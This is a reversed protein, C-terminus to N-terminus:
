EHKKRSIIERHVAKWAEWRPKRGIHSLYEMDPTMAQEPCSLFRNDGDLLNAIYVATVPSFGSTPSKDPEHHYYVAELIADPLGWIGLLYAGVEAHTANLLRKEASILSIKESNVLSIVEKYKEPMNLVLILLGIDHLMGAIFADDAQDSAGQECKVLEKAIISTLSSHDWLKKADLFEFQGEEISNFVHLSLTLSKITDIGLVTAAHEPNSVPRRLGFYASNVLQIIKSTMGIDKAIINGVKKMTSSPSKLEDVIELYLNPLSPLTQIESITKKLGDDSLIERLDSSRRIISKLTEASCPKALFQHSPGVSKLIMEEESHGSLAIRVMHPYLRRVEILLEVGNMEPMRIDTIIIDYRSNELLRLAERASEVFTMDWDQHFAHLMRRLGSLINPEDDVFIIRKKTTDSM